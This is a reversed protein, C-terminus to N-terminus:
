RDQSTTCDTIYSQVAALAIVDGALFGRVLPASVILIVGLVGQVKTVAIYCLMTLMGGIAFIRFVLRRGYRDSLSGYYSAMLLAVHCM